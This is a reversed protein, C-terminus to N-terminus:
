KKHIRKKHYSKGEAPQPIIPWFGYLSGNWSFTRFETQTSDGKYVTMSGQIEWISDRNIDALSFLGYSDIKLTSQKNDNRENIITCQQGDWSIIWLYM